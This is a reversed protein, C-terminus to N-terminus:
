KQRAWEATAMALIILSNTEYEQKQIIGLAEFFLCLLFFGVLVGFPTFRQLLPKHKMSEVKM